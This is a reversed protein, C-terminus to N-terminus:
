RGHVRCGSGIVSHGKLRVAMNPHTLRCRSVLFIQYLARGNGCTGDNMPPFPFLRALGGLGSPIGSSNWPPHFSPNPCRSLKSNIAHRGFLFFPSIIALPAHLLQLPLILL